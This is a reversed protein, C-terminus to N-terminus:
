EEDDLFDDDDEFKDEEDCGDDGCVPCNPYIGYCMDCM